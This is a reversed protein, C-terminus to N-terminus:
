GGSFTSFAHSGRMLLNVGLFSFLLCSFGVIAFVAARRGRWGVTLRGHLMAAYILWTALGWTQKPEWSWYSGWAIEAWLSGTIIGLTLLPFGITLCSYNVRDLSELSPLRQYLSGFNKSKLLREQVLYVIGAGCAVAFVANGLFALLVHVPFLWHDLILPLERVGSPTVLAGAAMFIVGLGSVFAGLVALRYRLEFLLLVGVLTFAFFSLSEQLNTVPTYGLTVFQSVLTVCHLIFGSLLTLRAPMQARPQRRAVDVLYLTTALLYILLTGRYLLISLTM